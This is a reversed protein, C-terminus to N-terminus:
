KTKMKKKKKKKKTPNTILINKNEIKNKPSNNDNIIQINKNYVNGNNINIHVNIIPNQSKEEKKINIDNNKMKNNTDNKLMENKQLVLYFNHFRNILLPYGKIM